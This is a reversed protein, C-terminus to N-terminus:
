NPMLGRVYDLLEQGTQSAVKIVEFDIPVNNLYQLILAHRGELGFPLVGAFIFGDVEMATAVLPTLPNEMDLWLHIVDRRALCHKKRLAPLEESAKPGYETVYIEAVNLTPSLKELFRTAGGREGQKVAAGTEVPAGIRGFLTKIIGGHQYPPYIVRAPAEGLCQYSLVGSERQSMKGAIEQYDLDGPFNGLMVGCDVYGQGASMKQSALHSTVARGYVGRVEQKGAERRLWADMRGMLGLKRYEPKVFAVGSEAVLDSPHKFKLAMHAMFCGQDDVAVVSKLLGQRNMELIREPYYIYEEYSYGFSHYACRSIELAEGEGIGRLEYTTERQTPETPGPKGPLKESEDLLNEIRNQKLYKTFSIERGERGLNRHDIEDVMRKMLFTGLGSADADDEAKPPSYEPILEPDFPLGKERVTVTLGTSDPRLSIAFNQESDSSFGHEVVNSFIEELALCIDMREEQDFGHAEALNEVFNIVPRLYSLSAPVTIHSSGTIM